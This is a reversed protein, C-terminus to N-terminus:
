APVGASVTRSVLDALAAIFPPFDNLGEMIEFRHIGLNEAMERGEINIEYLTEVHDSVFSVPVVLVREV